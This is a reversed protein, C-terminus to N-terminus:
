EVGKLENYEKRALRLDLSIMAILALIGGAVVGLCFSEM